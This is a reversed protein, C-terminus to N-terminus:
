VFQSYTIDKCRAQPIEQKAMFAITKTTTAHRWIEKGFSKSWVDKCKPQKLLHCYELDGTKNDFVASAFNCLFQLPFKCSAAQQNTFSQTLTPVDMM